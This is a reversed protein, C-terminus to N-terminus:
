RDTTCHLPVYLVMFLFIIQIVQDPGNNWSVGDDKTKSLYKLIYKLAWVLIDSWLSKVRSHEM